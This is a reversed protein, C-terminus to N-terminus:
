AQYFPHILMYCNMAYETQEASNFNMGAQIMFFAFKRYKKLQLYQLAAQEFFLAILIPAGQIEYAIRSMYSASLDIRELIEYLESIMIAYKILLDSQYSNHYLSYAERAQVELQQIQIPYGNSLDYAVQSLLQVELCSAAYKFAKCMKFDKLPYQANQSATEYDQVAFSLDCLNRLEIEAKNM